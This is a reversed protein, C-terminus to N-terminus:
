QQYEVAGIDISAGSFRADGNVDTWVSEAETPWAPDKYGADILPSAADLNVVPGEVSATMTILPDVRALNNEVVASPLIGTVYALLSAFDTYSAGTGVEYFELELAAMGGFFDNNSLALLNIGAAGLSGDLYVNFQSVTTYNTVVNNVLRLDNGSASNFYFNKANKTQNQLVTNNFLHANSETVHIAYSDVSAVNGGLVLLNSAILINDTPIATAGKVGIGYSTTTAAHVVIKNNVIEAENPGKVAIGVGTTAPTLRILNGQISLELIGTGTRKAVIGHAYTNKVSPTLIGSHLTNDNLTVNLRGGAHEIKVPLSKLDGVTAADETLDGTTIISNEITVTHRGLTSRVLLGNASENGARTTIFCNTITPSSNLIAITARDPGPSGLIGLNILRPVDSTSTISLTAAGTLAILTNGGADGGLTDGDENTAFGGLITVGKSIFVNGSPYTGEYVVIVSGTVAVNRLVHVLTQCPTDLSCELNESGDDNFNSGDTKIILSGTDFDYTDCDQDIGDGAQEEADPKIAPDADNCDDSEAYFGDADADTTPAHETATDSGTDSGSDSGTDGSSDGGTDSDSDSGTDSATETGDSSADGSTDSGGSVLDFGDCNQDIGDDTIESAGPNVTADSDDCDDVIDFYGDGDGDQAAIDVVETGADEDDCDQDIGDDAIETAGPYVSADWNDCDGDIMYIGDGDSDISILLTDDCDDDLDNDPIEEADPNVANNDDDCDGEDTTFGDTDADEDAAISPDIGTSSGDSATDEEESIRDAQDSCGAVGLALWVAVIIISFNKM